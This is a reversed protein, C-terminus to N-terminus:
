DSLVVTGDFKGIQHQIKYRELFGMVVDVDAICKHLANTQMLKLTKDQKTKMFCGESGEDRYLWIDLPEEYEENRYISLLIKYLIVMWNYSGRCWTVKKGDFSKAIQYKGVFIFIMTPEFIPFVIGGAFNVYCLINKYDYKKTESHILEDFHTKLYIRKCIPCNVLEVRRDRNMMLKKGNFGNKNEMSHGVWTDMCKKCISHKCKMNVIESEEFLEYCVSCEM